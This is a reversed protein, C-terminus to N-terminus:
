KRRDEDYPAPEVTARIETRVHPEVAPDSADGSGWVVSVETGPETYQEDIVGVSLNSRHYYIYVGYTSYGIQEGDRLVADYNRSRLMPSEMRRYTDGDRYLSAFVDLVDDDNWLLSVKERSPGGEARELADKGIFDHSLDVFRGYGLERPRCYYDTINDSEYSGNLRYTAEETDMSLWQRYDALEEHEYIAPLPSAWATLFGSSRYALSGIQRLGHGMGADLITQLVTDEYEWPGWLEFGAEGSMGHRLAYIEHGDISLETFSFFPVEPLPQDTAAEMVALATPGQIQYRFDQPTAGDERRATPEERSVTAEYGGTEVNYQVWNPAIQTGVLRYNILSLCFLIGDGIVYGDPNSAIFQKADGPDFGDFDNIGLDRLVDLAEPGEIWLDTMHHSQNALSCGERWALQEEVWNTHEEPYMGFRFPLPDIEPSRLMELPGDWDSLAEELTDNTM